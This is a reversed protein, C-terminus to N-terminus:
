VGIRNFNAIAIWGTYAVATAMLALLVWALLRVLPAAGEIESKTLGTM